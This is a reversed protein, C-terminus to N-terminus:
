PPAIASAAESASRQTFRSAAAGAVDDSCLTTRM